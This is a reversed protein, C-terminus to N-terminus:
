NKKYFNKAISNVLNFDDLNDIDLSELKDTQIALANKYISKRNKKINKIWLCNILPNPRYFIKQNQSRTNGTELPSNEFVSRWKNRKLVQMAFSLHFDFQNVSFVDKKTKKALNIAKKITEISRLPGTPLLQVLLDNKNFSYKKTLDLKIYDFIKKKKNADKKKRLDFFINIKPLNNRKLAKNLINYYNFSDSSFIIKNFAKSKIASKVTWYILPEGNLLKINKNKLRSSGSRAPIFAITEM